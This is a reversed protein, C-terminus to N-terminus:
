MKWILLVNGKSSMKWGPFCFFTAQPSILYTSLPSCQPTMCTKTLFQWVSLPYSRTLEYIVRWSIPLRMSGEFFFESFGFVAEWLLVLQCVSVSPNRSWEGLAPLKELGGYSHMSSIFIYKKELGHSYIMKLDLM